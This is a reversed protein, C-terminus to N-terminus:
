EKVYDGRRSEEIYKVFKGSEKLRKLGTNFIKLMRQSNKNQKSFIVYNFGVRLPKPHYTLKKTETPSFHKQLQYHGIDPNHPFIKIRNNLLKKFNQIDESVWQLNFFDHEKLTYFEETYTYGLTAGVTLDKLDELINWDFSYSKLHFFVYKEELLPDSFYFDNEIELSHWWFVSGFCESNKATTYARKWPFFQYEVNIGELAFAETVIRNGLGFHKFNKSLYPPYEGTTLCIEEAFCFIPSTLIAMFNVIKKIRM